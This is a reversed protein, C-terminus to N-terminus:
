FDDQKGTMCFSQIPIQYFQKESFTIIQFAATVRNKAPDRNSQNECAYQNCDELEYTVAPHAATKRSARFDGPNCDTPQIQM